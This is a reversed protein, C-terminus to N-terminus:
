RSAPLRAAAPGPRPIRGPRGTRSLPRSRAGCDAPILVFSTWSWRAVGEDAADEAESAESAESAEAPRSSESGPSAPSLPSEAESSGGGGGGGGGGSSGGADESERAPTSHRSCASDGGGRGADGGGVGPLLALGSLAKLTKRQEYVGRQRAVAGTRPAAPGPETSARLHPGLHRRSPQAHPRRPRHAPPDM